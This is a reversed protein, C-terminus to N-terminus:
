RIIMIHYTQGANCMCRILDEWAADLEPRPTGRYKSHDSLEHVITQKQYVIAESAPATMPKNATFGGPSCLKDGERIASVISM